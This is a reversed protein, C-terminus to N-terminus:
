EPQHIDGVAQQIFAVGKLGDVVTPYDLPSEEGRMAAMGGRYVNAFAEIFGEPHGPPLRTAALSPASLYANGPKLLQDPQDLLQRRALGARGRRM